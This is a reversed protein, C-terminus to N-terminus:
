PQSPDVRVARYLIEVMLVGDGFDANASEMDAFFGNLKTDIVLGGLTPDAEIAKEVELSFANIATEIEQVDVAAPQNRLKMVVLPTLTRDTYVNVDSRVIREVMQGPPMRVLGAPLQAIEVPFSRARYWRPGAQTNAAILQQALAALVRERRHLPM